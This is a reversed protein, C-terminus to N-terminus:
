SSKILEKWNESVENGFRYWSWYRQVSQVANPSSQYKLSLELAQKRQNDKVLAFAEIADLQIRIREWEKPLVEHLKLGVAKVGQVDGSLALALQWMSLTYSSPEAEFAKECNTATKVFDSQGLAATAKVQYAVAYGHSSLPLKNQLVYDAAADAEDFMKLHNYAVGMNLRISVNDPNSQLYFKFCEIATRYRKKKFFVDNSLYEIYSIPETAFLEKLLEAQKQLEEPSADDYIMYLRSVLLQSKTLLGKLEADNLLNNAFMISQEPTRLGGQSIEREVVEKEMERIANVQDIYAHFHLQTNNCDIADMGLKGPAIKVKYVDGNRWVVLEPSEDKEEYADRAKFFSSDDVIKFDGYKLLIDMSKLGAGYATGGKWVNMIELGVTPRERRANNVKEISPEQGSIRLCGTTAILTFLFLFSSLTAPKRM